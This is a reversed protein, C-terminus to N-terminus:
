TDNCSGHIEDLRQASILFIHSDDLGDLTVEFTVDDGDDAEPMAISSLDIAVGAPRFGFPHAEKLPDSLSHWIELLMLVTRADFFQGRCIAVVGMQFCSLTLCNISNRSKRTNTAVRGSAMRECSRAHAGLGPRCVAAMSGACVSIGQAFAEVFLFLSMRQSVTRPWRELYLLAIRAFSGQSRRM